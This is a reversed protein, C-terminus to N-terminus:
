TCSKGLTEYNKMFRFSEPLTINELDKNGPKPDALPVPQSEPPKAVPATFVAGILTMSVLYRIIVELDLTM